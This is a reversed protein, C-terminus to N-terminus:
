LRKSGQSAVLSLCTLVLGGQPQAWGRWGLGGQQVCVWPCRQASQVPVVCFILPPRLPPVAVPLEAAGWAREGRGERRGLLLQEWGAPEPCGEPCLRAPSAGRWGLQLSLVPQDWCLPPMRGDVQVRECLQLAVACHLIPETLVPLVCYLVASSPSYFPEPAELGGGGRGASGGFGCGGGLQM